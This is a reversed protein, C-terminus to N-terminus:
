KKGDYHHIETTAYGIWFKSTRGASRVDPLFDKVEANGAFWLKLTTGDFLACPARVELSTWAFSRRTFIPKADQVWHTEGDESMAHHIAVQTWTHEAKPAFFGVDYFLHVRNKYVAASPTSYGDFGLEAPYRDSQELVVQPKTFASGDSSKALAIVRKVPPFGGPRLGVAAFYLYVKGRLVVAGPEAAHIGCSDQPNGTAQLVPNRPDKVWKIGDPSTAHGIALPGNMGAKVGTYYMHYRGGFSVVPPTEVNQCDFDDTAGPGLLPTRPDLQWNVGDSSIVRYPQVPPRGPMEASSTMYMVYKSGTKLVCPDNWAARPFLDGLCICPSHDYAKWGAQCHLGAVPDNQSTDEAVTRGHVGIVGSLIFFALAGSFWYGWEAHKHRARLILWM